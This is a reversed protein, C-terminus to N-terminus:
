SSKIYMHIDCKGLNCSKLYMQHKKTVNQEIVYVRLSNFNIFLEFPYHNVKANMLFFLTDGVSINYAENLAFQVTSVHDTCFLPDNRVIFSLMNVIQINKGNVLGNSSPRDSQIPM